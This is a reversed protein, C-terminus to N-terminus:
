LFRNRKNNIYLFYSKKVTKDKKKIKARACLPHSLIPIVIAIVVVFVAFKSPLLVSVSVVSIALFWSLSDAIHRRKLSNRAKHKHSWRTRRIKIKINQKRARGRASETEINNKNFIKKTIGAVDRTDPRQNPKRHASYHLRIPLVSM